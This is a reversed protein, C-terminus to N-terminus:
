ETEPGAQEMETLIERYAQKLDKSKEEPIGNAELCRVFVDEPELSSLEENERQQEIGGESYVPNKIRLIELKSGATLEEFRTKLVVAPEYATLEIELWIEAEEALLEELKETIETLNGRIGQLRRFVPVDHETVGIGPSNFDAVLVKKADSENFGMKVPSGSYRIIDSGAVKQPQHLHGLAMYDFGESISNGDVHAITGIYLERVGDGENTLANRTFLHGMGILPVVKGSKTMTEKARAKVENYHNSIGTLLNRQKEDANEGAGTTRVDKDRLYPVACIIAEPDGSEDYLVIVENEVNDQASGVVRINLAKLIERPAELLAPSDHNGGTIVVHRCGTRSMRGLFNYYLEQAQNGPNSSDFIDGAVLLVDIRQNTIFSVLWDLFRSFEDHRRKNYLTRGLHWDSTHLIRM